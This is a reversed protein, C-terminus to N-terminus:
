KCLSQYIVGYLGLYNSITQRIILTFTQICKTTSFLFIKLTPFCSFSLEQFYRLKSPPSTIVYICLKQHEFPEDVAAHSDECDKKSSEDPELYNVKELM